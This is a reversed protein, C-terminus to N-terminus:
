GGSLRVKVFFRRPTVDLQVRSSALWVAATTLTSDAVNLQSALTLVIQEPRMAAVRAIVDRPNPAPAAPCAQRPCDPLTALFPQTREALLLSNPGGLWLRGPAVRWPVSGSQALLLLAALAGTM